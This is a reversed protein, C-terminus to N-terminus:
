DQALKSVCLLSCCPRPVHLVDRLTLTPCLVFSDKRAIASLSDDAIKM